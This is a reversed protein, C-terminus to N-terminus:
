KRLFYTFTLRKKPYMEQRITFVLFHVYMLLVYATRVFIRPPFHIKETIKKKTYTTTTGISISSANSVDKCQLLPLFLTNHRKAQLKPYIVNLICHMSFFHIKRRKFLKVMEVNKNLTFIIMEAFVAKKSAFFLSATFKKYCKWPLKKGKIKLFSCFPYIWDYM